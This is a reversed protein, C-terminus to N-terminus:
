FTFKLGCVVGRGGLPARDKLFSTPLRAEANTLNVGKVYLDAETSGLTLRYGISANLLIYSDTPLEFESTRNQRASFQGEM